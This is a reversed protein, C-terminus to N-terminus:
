DRWSEVRDMFCKKLERCKKHRRQTSETGTQLLIQYLDESTYRSVIKKRALDIKKQLESDFNYETFSSLFDHVFNYAEDDKQWRKRLSLPHIPVYPITHSGYGVCLEYELTDILKLLEDYEVIHADIPLLLEPMKDESLQESIKSLDNITQLPEIDSTKFGAEGIKSALQVSCDEITGTQCIHWMDLDPLRNIIKRPKLDSSTKPCPRCIQKLDPMSDGNKRLCSKCTWESSQVLRGASRLQENYEFQETIIPLVGKFDRDIAYFPYGTAFTGKHGPTHCSLDIFKDVNVKLYSVKTKSNTAEYLNSADVVTEIIQM